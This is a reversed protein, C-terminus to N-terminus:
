DPEPVELVLRSGLLPVGLYGFDFRHVTGAAFYPLKAEV